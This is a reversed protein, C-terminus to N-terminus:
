KSGESQKVEAVAATASKVTQKADRVAHEATNLADSKAPDVDGMRKLMAKAQKVILSQPDIRELESILLEIVFMMDQIWDSRQSSVKESALLEGRVAQVENRYGHVELRFAKIQDAYDALIREMETADLAKRENDARKRDPGHRFWIGLATFAAAVIAAFTAWAAASGTLAPIM